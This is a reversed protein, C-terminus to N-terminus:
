REHLTDRSPYSEGQKKLRTPKKKLFSDMAQAYNREGDMKAKLFSGLMQSVSTDNEAAWIRAWRAVEDPLVITINRVAVVECM